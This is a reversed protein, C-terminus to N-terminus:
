EEGFIVAQFREIVADPSKYADLPLGAKRCTQELFETESWGYGTAVQPLLLGRQQGMTIMLGDRGVKIEDLSMVKQLPTLVSIEVHLDPLETASVPPFRPDEVAAKIACESVTQYLPKFAMTYGICGRLRGLKTLTVFAAGNYRLNDSVDFDPLPKQNLHCGISTRAIELLRQRDSDPLVFGAPEYSATEKSQPASSSSSGTSGNAKYVAAALYGVVASKDGSADGSDGYKLIKVKNAGKAIAAKLVAVTAGGGCAETTGSALHKELAEPDLREICAVGVSDFKWGESAPRYHQWDTSALLIVHEDINLSSLGRALLQVTEQNPYGMLVPVIHFESLTSQLYSLQVELCHEAAHAEQMVSIDKDFDILRQCLDNNCPVAGLPTAWTVDPGYVAIGQFGVRHSPGCLIVTSINSNELLKYGHAAIQGSYVLGAHPVILAILQGDIELSKGVNALHGAVMTALAASDGPYFSGAVAPQRTATDVKACCLLAALCLATLWTFKRM